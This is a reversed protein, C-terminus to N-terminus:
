HAPGLRADLTELTQWDPLRRELKRLIARAAAIRGVDELARARALSATLPDHIEALEKGATRSAGTIAALALVWPDGPSERLALALLPATDIRGRHIEARALHYHVSSTTQDGRIPVYGTAALERFLQESLQWDGILEATVGLDFLRAPDDTAARAARITSTLGPTPRPPALDRPFWTSAEDRYRAAGTADGRKEHEAATRFLLGRTTSARWTYTDERQLPGDVSLIVAFLLAVLGAAIAMRSRGARWLQRLSIPLTAAAVALAPILGNRQRSSVYFVIMIGYLALAYLLIPTLARREPSVLYGILAMSFLLGFPLWLPFSSLERAKTWTTMLDWADHSNAAAAAKDLLLHAAHRPYARAFAIALSTWYRNSERADLPSGTAARAVIRYAVHLSDPEHIENEIDSVVAPTAGPYGAANPNLGEYFVQGPDMIIVRGTIAVGAGVTLAVPVIIGAALWPLSLRGPHERRRRNLTEVALWAGLLIAPALGTPRFAISTGLALGAAIARAEMRPRKAHDILMALALMNLAAIWVEPEIETANLLAARSLLVALTALIGAWPGAIRRATWGALAATTASVALQLTRIVEYPWGLFRRILAILYFYGPSLDPLRDVRLHGHLAADAFFLYKAFHGQDHLRSAVQWQVLFGVVAISAIVLASRTAPLHQEM